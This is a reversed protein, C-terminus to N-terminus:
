QKMKQRTSHGRRHQSCNQDEQDRGRWQAAKSGERRSKSRVFVVAGANCKVAGIQRAIAGLVGGRRDGKLTGGSHGEQGQYGETFDGVLSLRLERAGAEVWCGGVVAGLVPIFNDFLGGSQAGGSALMNWALVLAM